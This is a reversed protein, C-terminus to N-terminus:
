SLNQIEIQDGIETCSKEITGAPLEIVSNAKFFIPSLAFPRLSKIIGVVYGKKDVFVADIAFKMFFMHIAQCGPIVLAEEHDLHSRGMLGILRSFFSKAILAKKALFTKKTSNFIEM